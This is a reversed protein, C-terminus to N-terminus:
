IRFKAIDELIETHTLMTARCCYREIGLSDLVKGPNEGSDVRKRFTEWMGGVPKGCSMCRIPVLM